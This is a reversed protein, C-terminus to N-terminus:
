KKGGIHIMDELLERFDKVTQLRHNALTYGYGIKITVADKLAKFMDEDTVDDGAALMFDYDHHNTFLYTASGKNVRQDKIELVM